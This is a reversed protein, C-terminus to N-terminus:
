KKEWKGCWQGPPTAPYQTTWDDGMGVVTPPNFRCRGVTTVDMRQQYFKCNSCQQKTTSM